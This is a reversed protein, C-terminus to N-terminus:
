HTAWRRKLTELEAEAKQLEEKLELVKREQSALSVLFGNPDNPSAISVEAPTPPFSSTNSSTPTPRASDNSDTSAAVPFSLSLRNPRRPTYSLARSHKALPRPPPSMAFHARNPSNGVHPSPSALAKASEGSTLISQVSASDISSRRRNHSAMACITNQSVQSSEHDLLPFFTRQSIM